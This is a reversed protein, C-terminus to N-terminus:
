TIIANGVNDEALIWLYRNGDGNSKELKAGNYFGTSFSGTAPINNTSTRQYKLSEYKINAGPDTVTVTTAHYKAYTGSGNPNIAVTPPTKDINTIDVSKVVSINGATDRVKIKINSTNTTYIQTNGTQWTSGDDFSYATSHLGAGGTDSASVTITIDKNTRGTTNPTASSITPIIKDINTIDVSKVASINGATDRVKINVIQNSPFSKTNGTQWTSGNDFSYATPHLGAGGTDNASVTITIDKNTRSTTNPTASSITPPTNDITFGPSMPSAANGNGAKDTVISAKPTLTGTGNGNGATV